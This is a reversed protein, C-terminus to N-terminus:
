MPSSCACATMDKMSSQDASKLYLRSYLLGGIRIATHNYIRKTLLDRDQCLSPHNKPRTDGIKQLKRHLSEQEKM